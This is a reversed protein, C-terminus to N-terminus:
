SISDLQFVPNVNTQYLAISKVFHITENEKLAELALERAVTVNIAEPVLLHTTFCQNGNQGSVLFFFPKM